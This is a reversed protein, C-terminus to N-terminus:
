PSIITKIHQSKLFRRWFCKALKLWVKSLADISSKNLNHEVKNESSSILSFVNVVNLLYINKEVIMLDIEVLSRM